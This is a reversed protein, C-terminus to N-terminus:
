IIMETLCWSRHSVEHPKQSCKIKKKKQLLTTGTQGNQGFKSEDRLLYKASLHLIDCAEHLIKFYKILFIVEAKENWRYFLIIYFVILVIPTSEQNRKCILQLKACCIERVMLSLSMNYVFPLFSILLNTEQSKDGTLLM